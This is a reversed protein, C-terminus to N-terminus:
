RRRRLQAPREGWFKTRWSSDDIAIIRGIVDEIIPFQAAIGVNLASLNVASEISTMRTDLSSGPSKNVDLLVPM